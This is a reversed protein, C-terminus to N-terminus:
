QVKYTQSYKGPIGDFSIGEVVLQIETKKPISFLINAEGQKNTTISPLWFLTPNYRLSKKNDKYEFKPQYFTKITEYGKEQIYLVNKDQKRSKSKDSNTHIIIVGGNGKAGYSAAKYGKLVEIKGVEEPDVLGLVESIDGPNTLVNGGNASPGATTSANASVNTPVQNTAIGANIAENAKTIGNVEVGDIIVLPTTAGDLSINSAGGLNSISVGPANAAIMQFINQYNTGTNKSDILFAHPQFSGDEGILDGRVVVEELLRGMITTDMLQKRLYTNSLRNKTQKNINFDYNRFTTRPKQPIEWNVLAPLVKGQKGLVKFILNDNETFSLDQMEFIGLNTTKSIYAFNSKSNASVLMVDQNIIPKGTTPEKVLGKLSIGKQPKWYVPVGDKKLVNQWEFKRWGHTMMVLDLAYIKTKNPENFFYGPSEIFGKLESELYLQSLIHSNHEYRYALDVDTISLSLHAPITYGEEDRTTIKLKVEDSEEGEEVQLRLHTSFDNERNVFVIREARPVEKSDFLTLTYVGTPVKNKPVELNIVGNKFFKKQRFYINGHSQGVLYVPEGQLDTTAQIRVKIGKPHTNKAYLVYGSPQVEPIEFREKSNNLIAYYQKSAKPKYFFSGMGRHASKFFTVVKGKEDIVKGEVDVGLGHQNIAKFGIQSTLGEVLEGGEPFFQLDLENETKRSVIKQGNIDEEPNFVEIIQNFYNERKQNRMWNTYARILYKGTPLGPKLEFHGTGKGRSLRIKQSDVFKGDPAIIDVHLVISINSLYFDNDDVVYAAYWISEGPIFSQRDLHLYVKEVPMSNHHNKVKLLLHQLFPEDSIDNNNLSIQDFSNLFITGFAEDKEFSNIVEEEVPTRKVIPNEEWFRKNYGVLDLIDRDSSRKKVKGGLKKNRRLPKYYEYFTLFSESHVPYRFEEGIFYDFQQDFKVFDMLLNGTSDKKFATEFQIILNEFRGEKDTLKIIPLDDNQIKGKIKMIDYNDVDIYVKGEFAPRKIFSKYTMVVVGIKQGNVKLVEELYIDFIEDPNEIFPLYLDQTQPQLTPFIKSMLTFNRNLLEEKQEAYRGEQVEWDKIGNKNFKVDYFIEMLEVYEDANQSKQRYFAKGFQYKGRNNDTKRWARKVLEIAYKDIKKDKIVIEDLVKAAPTLGIILNGVEKVEITRREFAINSIILTAPLKPVKIIFEGDENSFTGKNDTSAIINCFPIPIDTGEEVLKGALVIEQSYSCFGYLFFLIFLSLPKFLSLRPM